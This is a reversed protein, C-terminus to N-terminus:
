GISFQARRAVNAARCAQRQALRQRGTCRGEYNDLFEFSAERLEPDFVKAADTTACAVVQALPMGFMLLKSMVNPFDIVGTSRSMANWDTFLTGPWFGQKTAREVMDWNFHGLSETALTLFSAAAARPRWRRSARRSMSFTYHRAVASRVLSLNAQNIAMLEGGTFGTRTAVNVLARGIQPGGGLVAAIEDINDPGGSGDVLGTVGDQLAPSDKGCTFWEAAAESSDM